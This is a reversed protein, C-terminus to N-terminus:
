FAAWLSASEMCKEGRARDKSEIAELLQFSVDRFFYVRRKEQWSINYNLPFEWSLKPIMKIM